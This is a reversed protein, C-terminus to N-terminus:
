KVEVAVCSKIEDTSLKSYGQLDVWSDLYEPDGTLIRSLKGFIAEIAERQPARMREWSPSRRAIAKLGQCIEANKAFSGYRGGREDLVKRIEDAM